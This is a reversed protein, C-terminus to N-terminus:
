LKRSQAREHKHLGRDPCDDIIARVEAEPRLPVHNRWSRHFHNFAWLVDEPSLHGPDTHFRPDDPDVYDDLEYGVANIM